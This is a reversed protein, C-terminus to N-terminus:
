GGQRSRRQRAVQIVREIRRQRQADLLQTRSIRRENHARLDGYLKPPQRTAARISDGYAQADMVVVTFLRAQGLMRGSGLPVTTFARSRQPNGGIRSGVSTSQSRPHIATV